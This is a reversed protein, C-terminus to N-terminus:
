PLVKKLKLPDIRFSSGKGQLFHWKKMLHLSLDSVLMQEGARKGGPAYEIQANVKRFIGDEFPSPLRGRAEYVQVIWNDEVTMPEGLGERGKNLLERLKDAAEDFDLGLRSMEQEDDNIIELINRSDDGLFGDSTIVGPQMNEQAKKYEPTMWM